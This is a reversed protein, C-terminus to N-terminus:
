ISNTQPKWLKIFMQNLSNWNQKEMSLVSKGNELLSYYKRKRGNKSTKWSSKIFDKEELKHLIPYLTGQKWELQEDSIEKIRQIILYGYSEGEQLVSLILPISAAGMMEKSLNKM